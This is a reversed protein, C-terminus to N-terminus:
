EKVIKRVVKYGDKATLQLLYIGAGLQQLDLIEKNQKSAAKYVERGAMDHLSIAIGAMTGDITLQETVPNPYIKVNIQQENAKTMGVGTVTKLMVGSDGAVFCDGGPTCYISNLRLTTGSLEKTWAAGGNITKLITGNDGVAFCFNDNLCYISNLKLLSSVGSTQQKWTDGGDATKVIIGNWGVSYGVEKSPFFISNLPYITTVISWNNGGDTTKLIVPSYPGVAYGTSSSTFFISSIIAGGFSNYVQFWSKGRNETKYIFHIDKVAFGTNNDVFFLSEGAFSSGTGVTTDAMFWNTGGDTTKIIGESGMASGRISYYGEIENFFFVSAPCLESGWGHYNWTKGGDITKLLGNSAWSSMNYDCDLVYGIDDSVFFVSHLKGRILTDITDKQWQAKTNTFVLQIAALIFFLKSNM